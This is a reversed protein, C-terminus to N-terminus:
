REIVQLVGATATKCDMGSMRKINMKKDNM